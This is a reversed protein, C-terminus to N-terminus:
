WILLMGDTAETYLSLLSIYIAANWPEDRLLWRAALEGVEVNKHVRCANLIADWIAANAKLPMNNMFMVAQAILGERSLFDVVCGFHEITPETGFESKMRKFYTLGQEVLGAHTCGSLLGFFTIANPKVGLKVMGSIMTTWEGVLKVKVGEFVHIADKISG